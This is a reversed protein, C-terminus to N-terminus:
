NLYQPKKPINFVFFLTVILMGTVYVYFWWEYGHQKFLLAFWEASGGFLAAGLSHSFSVGLARVEAPFVEAKILGAIATYFSLILLGLCVLLFIIIVAGGHSLLMFIPVVSIISLGCFFLMNNRRGIKDALIGFLPQALLFVILGGTMIYSAVRMPLHVTNVLYKQMYTTLTYFMLSGTGAYMFVSLFAKAHNKFLWRLSGVKDRQKVPITYTEQLASRLWFVVVAAVAGIMFPIRWAWAKLEQDTFLSQLCVLMLVAVLQGGILSMYQFSGYFGRQHEPAIEVMYTATAGYEGGVSFGQLLRACVLLIPAAIGISHYGPLCAILLSGFCMCFISFVLSKKRGQKDAIAGLIWGGLPRMLFGVAFVGATYLLQVTSDKNPFFHPAFYIACFAYIYFDFWEVVNGSSAILIARISKSRQESIIM